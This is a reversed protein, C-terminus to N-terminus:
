LIEGGTKSDINLGVGVGLFSEGVCVVGVVETPMEASPEVVDAFLSLANLLLRLM